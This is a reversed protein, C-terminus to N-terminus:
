LKPQGPNRGKPAPLEAQSTAATQMAIRFWPGAGCRVGGILILAGLFLNLIITRCTLADCRNQLALLSEGGTAIPNLNPNLNPNPNPYPGYKPFALSFGEGRTKRELDWGPRKKFDLLGEQLYANMGQVWVSVDDVIM